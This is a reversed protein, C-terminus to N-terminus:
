FGNFMFADTTLMKFSFLFSLSVTSLYKAYDNAKNEKMYVEKCVNFKNKEDLLANGKICCDEFLVQSLGPKQLPSMPRNVVCSISNM